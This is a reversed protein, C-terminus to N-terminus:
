PEALETQSERYVFMSILGREIERAKRRQKMIETDTKSGTNKKKIMGEESEIQREKETCM